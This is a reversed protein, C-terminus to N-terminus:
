AAESAGARAVASDLSRSHGRFRSATESKSAFLDVTAGDGATGTSPGADPGEAVESGTCGLSSRVWASCGFATATVRGAGAANGAAAVVGILVAVTAAVALVIGCDGDPACVRFEAVCCALEGVSMLINQGM